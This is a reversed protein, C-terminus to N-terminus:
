TPYTGMITRTSPGALTGSITVHIGANVASSAADDLALSVGGGLSMTAVSPRGSAAVQAKVWNLGSISIVFTLETARM